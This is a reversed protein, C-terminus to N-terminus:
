FIFVAEQFHHIWPSINTQTRHPIGHGLLSGESERMDDAAPTVHAEDQGNEHHVTSAYPVACTKGSKRTM